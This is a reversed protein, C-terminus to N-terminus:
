KLWGWLNLRERGRERELCMSQWLGVEMISLGMGFPFRSFKWVWAKSVFEFWISYSESNSSILPWRAVSCHCIDHLEKSM